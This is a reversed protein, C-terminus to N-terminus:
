LFDELRWLQNSNSGKILITQQQLPHSRLHDIAQDVNAFRLWHSPLAIGDFEDGVLWVNDLSASAILDVLTQHESRSAHGLEKMGGVIASRHPEPSAAFSQLAAAMSTPNANYCDLYLTNTATQRLQSRHNAPTYHQLAQQIDYPDVGFHLGVAVAAMANDFNYAGLLQTQVTYVNDNHEFYFKMYPTSGLCTGRSDADTHNGYTVLQLPTASIADPTIQPLAPQYAPLLSPTAPLTALQQAHHLLINNDANVFALGHNAALHRYLETKTQVVGEFSGFGELHARGVNTILGHTPNALHCLQSIEGPHNAGM